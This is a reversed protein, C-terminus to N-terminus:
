LKLITRFLDPADLDISLRTLNYDALYLLVFLKAGTALRGAFAGKGDRGGHWVRAIVFSEEGTYGAPGDVAVPLEELAKATALDIRTGDDVWLVPPRYTDFSAPRIASVYVFLQRAERFFAVDAVQGAEGQTGVLRRGAESREVWVPM